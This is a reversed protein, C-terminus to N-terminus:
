SHLAGPRTWESISQAVGSAKWEEVHRFLRHLTPTKALIRTLGSIDTGYRKFTDRREALQAADFYFRYRVPEKVNFSSLHRGDQDNIWRLVHYPSDIFLDDTKAEASLVSVLKAQIFASLATVEASIRAAEEGSWPQSLIMRAGIDTIFAVWVPLHQTIVMSKHKFLVNGGAEGRLLQEYHQPKCYHELLAEESGWLEEGTERLFNMHVHRIQTPAEGMRNSISKVWSFASVGYEALYKLMEHFIFNNYALETVFAFSRIQLYEEFTLTNSSVAVEEADLVIQGEYEGFDLPVVRWKGIYGHERKYAEDKYDTGHLLQLTYSTVKRVGSDMLDEIGKLYSQFTEGPLPVIVEAEQSRDQAALVANIGKYAELSINDRKINRLVTEDMSQVAMNISLSSGLIETAKIVRDKSNKGTWACIQLPWHYKEQSQRILGAIEADRTFMGFNNDALMLGTIGLRAVRPAIYAIEQAVYDLSFKNVRNFYVDGANCFNCLFPCGRTTEMMPMLRGDFFEDLMGSVYPSPIEDLVKIREVPQGAVLRGTKSDLFQCGDIANAKMGFLDRAELYRSVLNTFSIEGEYFVYFDTHPRTALFKQRGAAHFPYNTGGQVTIVSPRLKKAYECAWESLNSNWVYNSCGLIDPPRDKIAKFLDKPYKFLKIEIADGLKQKAYAGILGVNIPFCDTAVRIGDHSLDALYILVRDSM